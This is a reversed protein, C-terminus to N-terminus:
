CFAFARKNGGANQMLETRSLQEVGFQSEMIAAIKRYARKEGRPVAPDDIKQRLWAYHRRIYELLSEAYQQSAWANSELIRKSVQAATRAKKEALKHKEM